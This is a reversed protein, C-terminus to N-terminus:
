GIEYLLYTGKVSEIIQPSIEKKYAEKLIQNLEKRKYFLNGCDKLFWKYYNNWLKARLSTKRPNEIDMLLVTKGIKKLNRLFSLLQKRDEFHHLSNKCIVYDVNIQITKADRTLFSVNKIGQKEAKKRLLDVKEKVIDNAFAKKSKKALELVLTSEGCTIDLITKKPKIKNSIAKHLLDHHIKKFIMRNLFYHFKYRLLNFAKIEREAQYNSTM